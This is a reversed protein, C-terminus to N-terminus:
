PAHRKFYKTFFHQIKPYYNSRPKQSTKTFLRATKALGMTKILRQVDKWDGYNLVHEVVSEDSLTEPNKVYWALYPKKKIIDQPKV